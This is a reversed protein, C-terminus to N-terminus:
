GFAINYLLNPRLQLIREPLSLAYRVCLLQPQPTPLPCDCLIQSVQRVTERIKSQAKVPASLAAFDAPSPEPQELLELLM